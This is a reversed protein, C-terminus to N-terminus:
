GVTLLAANSAGGTVLELMTAGPRVKPAVVAITDDCVRCAREMVELEEPSKTRRLENVLGSGTVIREPSLAETLHLLTEAWIRDGVALKRTEGMGVAAMEFLAAGDDRESVVVVEGPLEGALDFLTMMRPLVFVPERTARFFAGAVWGHAYQSQGFTPIGREVGTLYELDSSPQLFLLDVGAAGMREALRRRRESYDFVVM